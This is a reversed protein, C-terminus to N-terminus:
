SSFYFNLTYRKNHFGFVFLIFDIFYHFKCQNIRSAMESIGNITEIESIANRICDLAATKNTGTFGVTASYIISPQEWNGWPHVESKNLLHSTATLVPPILFEDPVSAMTAENKLILTTTEDFVEGKVVGYCREVRDKHIFAAM